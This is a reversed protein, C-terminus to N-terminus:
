GAFAGTGGAEAQEESGAVYCFARGFVNDAADASNLILALARLPGEFALEGVIGAGQDFNVASQFQGM